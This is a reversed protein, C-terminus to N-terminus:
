GGGATRKIRVCGEEVELATDPERCQRAARRVAGCSGRRSREQPGRRGGEAPGRGGHRETARGGIGGGAGAGHLEWPAGGQRTCSPDRWLRSSGRGHGGLEKGLWPARDQSRQQVRTKKKLRGARANRQEQVHQWSTRRQRTTTRSTRQEGHRTSSGRRTERKRVPQGDKIRAEVNDQEHL